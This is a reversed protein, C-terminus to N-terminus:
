STQGEVRLRGGPATAYAEDARRVGDGEPLEFGQRRLVEELSKLFFLVNRRSAGMGMLGIRWVRGKLEGLGAGMDIRHERMMGLRVVEGDVGAPVRVATLTALRHTEPVFLELGMAELGAALARANERHRRFREELGEEAVMRLAERLAFLMSVPATHHYFRDRGWYSQLLSLDLYWSRVPERREALRRSAAESFSLPALGPPCGLCKQSGSYCADIGWEDVLVPVGGLTAAADVVLLAGHRHAIAALEEVPQLVGASTEGHVVALLRHGGRRLATEVAAPDLVEGWPVRLVTLDAGCRSAMEVMREGFYGEVAVLVRDGPEILNVLCTEMGASGTGSMALTLRNETQFVLRLLDRVENMVELFDPDLHGIMPSALSALVRPHVNSPGPGMLLKEREKGGTM